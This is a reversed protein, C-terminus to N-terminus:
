ATSVLALVECVAGSGDLVPVAMAVKCVESVESEVAEASEFAKRIPCDTEDECGHRDGPMVVGCRASQAQVDSWVVVMGRNVAIGGLRLAKLLAQLRETASRTEADAASADDEGSESARFAQNLLEVARHIVKEVQTVSWVLSRADNRFAREIAPFMVDCGMLLARQVEAAGFGQASRFQVIGMLCDSLPEYNGTGIAEIMGDILARSRASIEDPDRRRYLPSSLRVRESWMRALEEREATLVQALKNQMPAM